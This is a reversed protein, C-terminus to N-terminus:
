EYYSTQRKRRKRKTTECEPRRLTVEEALTLTQCGGDGLYCVKLSLTVKYLTNSSEIVSMSLDFVDGVKETM